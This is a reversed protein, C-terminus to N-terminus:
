SSYRAEAEQRLPREDRELLDMTEELRVLAPKTASESAVKLTKKFKQEGWRFCIKFRGSTPPQKLWAM